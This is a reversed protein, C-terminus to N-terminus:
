DSYTIMRKCVGSICYDRDDNCEVSTFCSQGVSRSDPPWSTIATDLFSQTQAATAFSCYESKCTDTSTISGNGSVTAGHYSPCAGGYLAPSYNSVTYLVSGPINGCASNCGNPSATYSCDVPPRPDYISKAMIFYDPLSARTSGTVWTAGVGATATMLGTPNKTLFQLTSGYPGSGPSTESIRKRIGYVTAATVGAPLTIVTSDSLTNSGAWMMWNINDLAVNDLNIGNSTGANVLEASTWSGLVLDMWTGSPNSVFAPRLSPTGAFAIPYNSKTRSLLIILILAALIIIITTKM